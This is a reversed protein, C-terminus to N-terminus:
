GGMLGESFDDPVQGFQELVTASSLEGTEDDAVICLAAAGPNRGSWAQARKKAGNETPAVEQPGPVLRGRKMVFAQVVYTTKNAM